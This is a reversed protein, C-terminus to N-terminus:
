QTKGMKFYKKNLLSILLITFLLSMLGIFSLTPVAQPTGVIASNSISVTDIALTGANLNPASTDVFYLFAVRGNGNVNVSFQTWDQPYVGPLQNANLTLLTGFDGFDLSGNTNDKTNDKISNSAAKEPANSCAGTNISGTPSYMVRMQTVENALGQTRTYFSLQDIFGIAPMILWNCVLDVGTSTDNVIYSNAAGSQASFAAADGQAWTTATPMNSRNDFVWGNSQLTSVNDFSEIIQQAKLNCVTLLGGILLM